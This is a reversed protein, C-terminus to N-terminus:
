GLDRTRLFGRLAPLHAAPEVPRPSHDTEVWVVLSEPHAEDFHNVNSPENDLFLAPAGLLHLERLAEAKFFLDATQADPKMLLTTRPRAWPFGNKLLSAETAPRMEEHRGTLYVVHLGAKYCRWVLRAAGPMAHDHRPADPQFFGHEFARRVAPYIQEVRAPSLGSALLTDRMSWGVFREPTVQYLEPLHERSALERLLQVQRPRTDFLCGDLDFVGLASPLRGAAEGAAGIIRDLLADQEDSTHLPLYGRAQRM